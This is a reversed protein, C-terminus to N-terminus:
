IILSLLLQLFGTIMINTMGLYMLGHSQERNMERANMLNAAYDADVFKSARLKVPWMLRVVGSTIILIGVIFNWTFMQHSLLHRTAFFSYIGSAVTVALIIAAALRLIELIRDFGRSM